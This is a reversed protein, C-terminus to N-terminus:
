RTKLDKTLNKYEHDIADQNPLSIKRNIEDLESRLPVRVELKLLQSGLDVEIAKFKAISRISEYGPLKNALM